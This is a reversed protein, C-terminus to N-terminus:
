LYSKEIHFLVSHCNRCYLTSEGPTEVITCDSGDYHVTDCEECIM